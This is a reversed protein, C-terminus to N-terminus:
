TSCVLVAEVRCQGIVEGDTTCEKVVRTLLALDRSAGVQSMCLM